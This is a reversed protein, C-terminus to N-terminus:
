NLTPYLANFLMQEAEEVSIDFSLSIEENLLGTIKRLYTTDTQCLKKTTGDLSDKKTMIAKYLGLLNRFEQDKIAKTYFDKLHKHSLTALDVTEMEPLENLAALAETKSSIRRILVDADVPTYATTKTSLSQMVYYLRDSAGSIDPVCVDEVRYVGETRYLVLDNKQFM